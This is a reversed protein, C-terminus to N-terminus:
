ETRTTYAALLIGALAVANLLGFLFLLGSTNPAPNGTALPHLASAAFNSFMVAFALAVALVTFPWGTAGGFREVTQILLWGVGFSIFFRLLLHYVITPFFAAVLGLGAALLLGAALGALTACFMGRGLTWTPPRRRDNMM